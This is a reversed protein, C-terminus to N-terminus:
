LHTFKRSFNRLFKFFFLRNESFDSSPIFKFIHSDSISVIVGTMPLKSNKSIPLIPKQSARVLIFIVEMLYKFWLFPCKQVFFICIRFHCQFATKLAILFGHFILIVKKKIKPSPGRRTQTRSSPMFGFIYDASELPMLISDSIGFINNLAHFFLPGMPSLPLSGSNSFKDSRDPFIAVWSPISGTNGLKDSRGSNEWM